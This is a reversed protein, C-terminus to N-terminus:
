QLDGDNRHESERAKYKINNAVVRMSLMPRAGNTSPNCRMRGTQTTCYRSEARNTVLKEGDGFQVPVILLLIKLLNPGIHARGAHAGFSQFIIIQIVFYIKQPCAREGEIRLWIFGASCNEGIKGLLM